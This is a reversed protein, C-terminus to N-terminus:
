APEGRLEAAAERLVALVDAHTTTPADNFGVIPRSFGVPDPDVGLRRAAVRAVARNAVGLPARRPPWREAATLANLMCRATPFDAEGATGAGQCWRGPEGILVMARTVIDAAALDDPSVAPKETPVPDFPM